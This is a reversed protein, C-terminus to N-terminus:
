LLYAAVATARSDRALFTTASFIHRTNPLGSSVPWCGLHLSYKPWGQDANYIHHMPKIQHLRAPHPTCDAVESVLCNQVLQKWTRQLDALV